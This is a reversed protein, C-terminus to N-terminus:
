TENPYPNNSSKPCYPSIKTSNFFQSSYKIRTLITIIFCTIQSYFLTSYILVNLPSTLLQYINYVSTLGPHIYFTYLLVTSFHVIVLYRKGGINFTIHLTSFTGGNFQLEQCNRLECLNIQM